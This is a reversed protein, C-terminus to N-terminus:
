DDVKNLVLRRRVQRTSTCILGILWSGAVSSAIGLPALWDANRAEEAVQAATEAGELAYVAQLFGLLVVFGESSWGSFNEFDLFVFHASNHQPAKVLLIIALCITGGLTWWSAFAALRGVFKSGLSNIIGGLLCFGRTLLNPHLLCPHTRPHFVGLWPPSRLEPSPTDLSKSHVHWICPLPCCARPAPSSWPGLRSIM